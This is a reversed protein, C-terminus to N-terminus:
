QAPKARRAVAFQQSRARGRRRNAKSRSLRKRVGGLDSITPMQHLVGAVGEEIRNAFGHALDADRDADGGYIGIQQGRGLADLVLAIQPTLIRTL